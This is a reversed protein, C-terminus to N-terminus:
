LSGGFVVRHPLRLMWDELRHTKLAPSRGRLEKMAASRESPSSANLEVGLDIDQIPDHKTMIGGFAIVRTVSQNAAARRAVDNLLEEAKARSLRAPRVGAVINGSRTNRWHNPKRPVPEAYGTLQLEAALERASALDIKLAKAADNFTWEPNLAAQKLFSLAAQSSIRQDALAGSM